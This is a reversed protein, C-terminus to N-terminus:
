RDERWPKPTPPCEGEDCYSPPPGPDCLVASSADTWGGPDVDADCYRCVNGPETEGDSYCVGDIVCYGPMVTHTCNGDGECADLTCDLGDDCSYTSGVCTGGSCIDNMTCPDGDDCLNSSPTWAYADTGSNCILCPEVPNEEGNSYCYGDILCFGPALEYTCGGYGDCLDITCPNGDDCDYWMHECGGAGLCTDITCPNGDDCEVGEDQSGDCDNDLGDCTIEEPEYDPGYNYATCPVWAGDFCPMTSGSCVGAQQACLPGTLGNADNGDCDHDIGDCDMEVAGPHVDEDSDDCDLNNGVYGTPQTFAVTWVDPNGFDDSDGDLYWTLPTSADRNATFAYIVSGLRLRPTMEADDAVTVGLWIDQGVFLADDLPATIGLYVNFVGNEVTVQQAESWIETGGEAAEYLRFTMFYDGTLPSGASDTLMGQHNLVPPVDALGTGAAIAVVMATLVFRNM